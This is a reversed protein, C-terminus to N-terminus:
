HCDARGPGRTPTSVYLYEGFREECLQTLEDRDIKPALICLDDHDDLHFNMVGKFLGAPSSSETPSDVGNSDSTTQEETSQDTATEDPQPPVQGDEKRNKVIGRMTDVDAISPEQMSFIDGTLKLAEDICQNLTQFKNRLGITNKRYEKLTSRIRHVLDIRRDRLEILGLYPGREELEGIPWNQILTAVLDHGLEEEDEEELELELETLESELYLLNRVALQDFRRFITMTHLTEKAVQESLHKYPDLRKRFSMELDTADIM